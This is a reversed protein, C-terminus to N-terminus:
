ASTIRFNGVLTQPV